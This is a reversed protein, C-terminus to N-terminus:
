IGMANKWVVFNLFIWVYMNKEYNMTKSHVIKKVRDEIGSKDFFVMDTRELQEFIWDYSSNYWKSFPMTFGEKRRRRVYEPIRGNFAKRLICKQSTSNIKMNAPIRLSHEIVRSDTFPLMLRIGHMKAPETMHYLRRQSALYLDTYIEKNLGVNSKCRTYVSEIPKALDFSKFQEYFYPNALGELNGNNFFIEGHKYHRFPARKKVNNIFESTVYTGPTNMIDERQSENIINWFGREVRSIAYNQMGAFIIDSFEGSFITKVKKRAESFMIHSQIIASDAMPEDMFSYLQPLTQIADDKIVIENNEFGMEDAVKTGFDFSEYSDVGEFGGTFSHIRSSSGNDRLISAIITSDLGGSLLIGQKGKMRSKTAEELSDRVGKACENEDEQTDSFIFDYYKEFFLRGNSMILCETAPVKRIGKFMTLPKPVFQYCLYQSLAETDIAKSINPSRLLTRIRSAAFLGTDTNHYFIDKIGLKDIAMHLREDKKDWIVFAFSGNILKLCEKGNAEFSSVLRELFTNDNEYLDSDLLALFRDNNLVTDHGETVIGLKGEIIINNHKSIMGEMDSERARRNKSLFVAIM